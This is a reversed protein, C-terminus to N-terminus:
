IIGLKKKGRIVMKPNKIERKIERDLTAIIIEPNEDAFNIIARDTNKGDLKFTEFNNANLLKLALEKKLGRLEKIVKDPILIKMGLMELEEFFDIKQKVCTLIFNTDLLIKKM